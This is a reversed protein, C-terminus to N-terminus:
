LRTKKDISLRLSTNPSESFWAVDASAVTRRGHVRWSRPSALTPFLRVKNFLADAQQEVDMDGFNL